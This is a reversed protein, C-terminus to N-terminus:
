PAPAPLNAGGHMTADRRARATILTRREDDLPTADLRKEVTDLDILGHRWLTAIYRLDKDRGAAYKSVAIDHVELCLATVGRTNENSIEILRGQWGAPLTATRDGVPDAYYGFTKYFQSIEGITGELLQALEPRGPFLIDAENSQLLEEPADPFQGLVAQSGIVVLENQETIVGAARIVHELEERTM